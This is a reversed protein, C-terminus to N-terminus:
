HVLGERKCLQVTVRDSERIHASALVVAESGITYTGILANNSAAGGRSRRDGAPTVNLTTNCTPITPPTSTREASVEPVRTEVTCDLVTM